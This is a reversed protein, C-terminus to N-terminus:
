NDDDYINTDNQPIMGRKHQAPQHQQNQRQQGYQQQNDNYLQGYSQNGQQRGQQSGQQNGGRGRQFQQGYQQPNRNSKSGYAPRRTQRGTLQKILGVCGFKLQPNLSKEAVQILYSLVEDIALDGIPTKPNIMKREPRPPRSPVVEDNDNDQENHNNQNNQNNQNSQNNEEDSGEDEENVDIDSLQDEEEDKPASQKPKGKAIPQKKGRVAKQPKVPSEEEIIEEDSEEKAVKRGRKKTEEQKKAPRPM